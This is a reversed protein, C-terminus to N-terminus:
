DRRMVKRYTERHKSDFKVLKQLDDNHGAFLQALEKSHSKFFYQLYRNNPQSNYTKAIGDLVIRAKKYAEKLNDEELYDLAEFFDPKIERLPRTRTNIIKQVEQMRMNWGRPYRSSLAQNAIDIAKEYLPNGLLLGNTDLEGAMVMYAYFDLFHTLPDFQVKSHSLPSTKEYTFEWTKDYFNEGSATSILFQAKYIKESSKKRVNEFIVHITCELDYEFEDEVWTYGNFYRDIKEALDILDDQEDTPLYEYEVTTSVMLVQAPIVSLLGFFFLFIFLYYRM